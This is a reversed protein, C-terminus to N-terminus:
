QPPTFYQSYKVGGWDLDVLSEELDKKKDM